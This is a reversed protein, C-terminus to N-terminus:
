MLVVYSNTYGDKCSVIGYATFFETKREQIHAFSQGFYTSNIKSILLNNNNCRTFRCNPLDRYLLLSSTSTATRSHRM